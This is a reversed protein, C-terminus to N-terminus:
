SSDGHDFFARPKGLHLSLLIIFLSFVGTRRVHVCYNATWLHIVKLLGLGEVMKKLKQKSGGGRLYVAESKYSM